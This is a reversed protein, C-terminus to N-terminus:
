PGKGAFADSIAGLLLGLVLLGGLVGAILLGERKVRIWKLRVALHLALSICFLLVVLKTSDPDVRDIRGWTRPMNMGGSASKEM